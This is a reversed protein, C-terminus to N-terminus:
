MLYRTNHVVDGSILAGAAGELNLSGVLTKPDKSLLAAMVGGPPTFIVNFRNVPALGGKKSITSKLNDISSHSM